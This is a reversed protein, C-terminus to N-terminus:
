QNETPKEMRDIVLVEVPGKGKELKLGTADPFAQMFTPAPVTDERLKQREPMYLVNLDYSGTLGTRNVAPAQMAERVEAAIQEM